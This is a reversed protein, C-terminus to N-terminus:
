RCCAVLALGLGLLAACRLVDRAEVERREDVANVVVFALLVVGALLAASGAWLGLFRATSVLAALLADMVAAM